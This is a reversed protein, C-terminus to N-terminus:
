FTAYAYMSKLHEFLNVEAISCKNQKHWFFAVMSIGHCTSTFEM